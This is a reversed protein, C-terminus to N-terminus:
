AAKYAYRHGRAPNWTFDLRSGDKYSATAHTCRGSENRRVGSMRAPEFMVREGARELAGPGTFVAYGGELTVASAGSIARLVSMATDQPIDMGFRMTM